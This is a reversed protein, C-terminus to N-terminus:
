FKAGEENSEEGGASVYPEYVLAEVEAVGCMGDGPPKTDVEQEGGRRRGDQRRRRDDRRLRLLRLLLLVVGGGKEGGLFCM